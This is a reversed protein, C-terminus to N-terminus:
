IYFIICIDTSIDYYNKFSDSCVFILTKMWPSLHRISCLAFTTKVWLLVQAEYTQSILPIVVLLKAHWSESARNPGIFDGLNLDADSHTGSHRQRVDSILIQTSDSDDQLHM